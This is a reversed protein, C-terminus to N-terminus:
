QKKRTLQLVETKALNIREIIEDIEEFTFWKVNPSDRYEALGIAHSYELKNTAHMTPYHAFQNRVTNLYSLEDILKKNPHGHKKSPKFGEEIARKLLLTKLATRKSEFTMRDFIINQMRSRDKPASVFEAALLSEINKEFMAFHAIVKGRIPYTREEYDPEYCDEDLDTLSAM